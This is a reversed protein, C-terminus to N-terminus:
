IYIGDEPLVRIVRVLGVANYQTIHAYLCLWRLAGSAHVEHRPESYTSNYRRSGVRKHPAISVIEYGQREAHVGIM